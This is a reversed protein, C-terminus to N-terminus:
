DIIDTPQGTIEFGIPGTIECWHTPVGEEIGRMLNKQFIHGNTNLNYQIQDKKYSTGEFMTVCVGGCSYRVLILASPKPLQTSFLTWNM